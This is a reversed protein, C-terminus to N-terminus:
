SPQLLFCKDDELRIRISVIFMLLRDDLCDGASDHWDTQQQCIYQKPIDCSCTILLSHAFNSSTRCAEFGKASGRPISVYGTITDHWEDGASDNWHARCRHLEQETSGCTVATTCCYYAVRINRFRLTIQCLSRASVVFVPTFL